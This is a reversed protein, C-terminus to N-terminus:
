FPCQNKHSVFGAFLEREGVSWDSAGRMAAQLAVGFPKGFLAARYGIVRIVDPARQGSLLTILGLKLRAGLSGGREVTALRM